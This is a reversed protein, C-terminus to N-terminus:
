MGAGSQSALVSSVVACAESTPVNSPAAFTSPVAGTTEAAFSNGITNSASGSATSFATQATVLPLGAVLGVLHHLKM